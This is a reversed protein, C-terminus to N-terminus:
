KGPSAAPTRLPNLIATEGHYPNPMFAVWSWLSEAQAGTHQSNIQIRVGVVTGPDKGYLQKYDEFVNRSEVIWKGVDHKGSRVVVAKMQLLPLLDGVATNGMTGIPFTNGWIYSITERLEWFRKSFGLIIQAAQDDINPNTFNGQEPLATVKWQWVLWPTQRLDVDIEKQISFSSKDAYFKLAPGIDERVTALGASGHHTTLEWGSPPAEGPSGEVELVLIEEAAGLPSMFLLCLGAVITGIFYGLLRLQGWFTKM